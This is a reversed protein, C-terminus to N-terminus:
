KEPVDLPVEEEPHIAWEVVKVSNVAQDYRMAPIFFTNRFGEMIMADVTDTLESSLVQVDVVAGYRNIFLVLKVRGHMNLPFASLDPEPEMLVQATSQLQDLYYFVDGAQLFPTSRILRAESFSDSGSRVENNKKDPANASVLDVDTMGVPTVSASSSFVIYASMRVSSVASGGTWHSSLYWGMLIFHTLFSVACAVRSANMVRM